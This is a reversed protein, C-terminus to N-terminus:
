KPVTYQCEISLVHRGDDLKIITLFPKERDDRVVTGGILKGIDYNFCVKTRKQLQDGQRPYSDQSVNQVVGM